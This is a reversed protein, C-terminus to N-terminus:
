RRKIAVLLTYQRTGNRYGTPSALAEYGAETLIKKVKSIGEYDDTLDYMRGDMDLKKDLADQEIQKILAEVDIKPAELQPIEEPRIMNTDQTIQTKQEVTTKHRIEPIQVMLRDLATAVTLVAEMVGVAEVGMAEMEVAMEQAVETVAVKMVLETEEVMVVVMGMTEVELIEGAPIAAVMERMVPVMVVVTEKAMEMTAMVMEVATIVMVKIRVITKRQPQLLLLSKKRRRKNKLKTPAILGHFNWLSHQSTARQAPVMMGGIHLDTHSSLIQTIGIRCDKLLSTM